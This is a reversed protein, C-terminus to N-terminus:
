AANITLDPHREYCKQCYHRGDGTLVWGHQEAATQSDGEVWARDDTIRRGHQDDRKADRRQEVYRIGMQNCCDCFIFSRGNKPAHYHTTVPFRGLREQELCHPCVHAGDQTLKWGHEDVATEVNGEFWARDDSIRRSGRDGRGGGRRQEPCRIGRPNCIDCFVFTRVSM